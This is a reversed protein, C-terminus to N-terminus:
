DWSFTCALFPLFLTTPKLKGKCIAVVTARIVIRCASEGNQIKDHSGSSYEDPLYFYRTITFLVSPPMNLHNVHRENYRLNHNTRLVLVWIFGRSGLLWFVWLDEISLISRHYMTRFKQSFMLSGTHSSPYRLLRLNTYQILKFM